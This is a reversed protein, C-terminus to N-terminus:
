TSLMTCVNQVCLDGNHWVTTWSLYCTSYHVRHQILLNHAQTIIGRARKLDKRSKTM